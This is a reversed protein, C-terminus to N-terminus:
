FPVDDDELQAATQNEKNQKSAPPRNSSKKAAPASNQQEGEEANPNREVLKIDNAKVYYSVRKNGDKDEYSDKTLEGDVYVMDGQHLNSMAYEGSRGWIEVKDHWTTKDKWEGSEKDKWSVRTSISIRVPARDSSQEPDKGLRGLLTVKNLNFNNNM